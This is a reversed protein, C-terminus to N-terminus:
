VGCDGQSDMGCAAIVKLIWANLGKAHQQNHIHNIKICNLAVKRAPLIITFFSLGRSFASIKLVDSWILKSPIRDLFYVVPDFLDCAAIM